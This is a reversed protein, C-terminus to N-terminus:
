SVGRARASRRPWNAFFSVWVRWPWMTATSISASLSTPTLLGATAHLGPPKRPSGGRYFLESSDPLEHNTPLLLSNFFPPQDRPDRVASYSVGSTAVPFFTPPHDSAPALPTGPDTADLCQQLLLCIRPAASRVEIYCEQCM